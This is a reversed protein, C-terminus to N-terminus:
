KKGKKKSSKKKAAPQVTTTPSDMWSMDMSLPDVPLVQANVGTKEQKEDGPLRFVLNNPQDAAASLTFNASANTQAAMFANYEDMQKKMQAEHAAEDEMKKQRKMQARARLKETASMKKEMQSFANMDFKAGKPINVGM